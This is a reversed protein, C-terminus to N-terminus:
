EVIVVRNLNMEDFLNDVGGKGEARLRSADVGYTKVLMDVVAQARKESLSQNIAPTGTASDAYGYITFVKNPVNKIHEAAYQLTARSRSSIVAKNLDFFIPYAAAVYEKEVVRVERTVPNNRLNDNERSLADARARADALDRLVADSADIVVTPEIYEFWTRGKNPINFTLGLTAAFLQDTYTGKFGATGTSYTKPIFSDRLELGISTVNSLRFQTLLGLTASYENSWSDNDFARIIGWGAFPVFSVTRDHRYGGFLNSVNFLADVRGGISNWKEKYLGNSNGSVPEKLFRSQGRFAKVPDDYTYGSQSIGNAQLRLGFVPSIWKGVSFDIAPNIRYSFPGDSDFDGSFIQIGGGLSLFWGDACTGFRYDRISKSPTQAVAMSGVSLM